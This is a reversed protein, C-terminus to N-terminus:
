EEKKVYVYIVKEVKEAYCISDIDFEYGMDALTASETNSRANTFGILTGDLDVVCFYETYWRHEDRDGIFVTNAGDRLTEFISDNEIDWGKSENYKVVFEYATM